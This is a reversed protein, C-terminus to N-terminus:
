SQRHDLFTLYLETKRFSDVEESTMEVYVNDCLEVLYKDRMCCEISLHENVRVMASGGSGDEGCMPAQVPAM